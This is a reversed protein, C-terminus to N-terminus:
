APVPGVEPSGPAGGHRSDRILEGLRRFEEGRGSGKRWALGIERFSRDDLPYTRILTGSLLGSGEAMEPVFTIGLDSEVMQLLTPLSTASFRSVKELNRIRCASLAHDRMCHGDELLLVSDSPLRRVSYRRPDVLRSGERCALRFRDRFLAMVEVDRLDYPLAILILDLEGALLAAYLRPTIDERLYLELRPFEAHVSPLVRPLLFPAITPIVGLRLRGALPEQHSRAVEVLREAEALCIRARAAVENGVPTFVVRKSTRDVLQVGLLGELEKIAVSFASQTVFCASAARGFHRHEQLAVLYRLQRLTPLSM